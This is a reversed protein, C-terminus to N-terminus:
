FQYLVRARLGITMNNAWNPGPQTSVVTPITVVPGAQIAWHNRQWEVPTGLTFSNILDVSCSASYNAQDFGFQPELYYFTVNQTQSLNLYTGVTPSIAFSKSLPVRYGLTLPIQLRVMRTDINWIDRRPDIGRAFEQRFDRHTRANFDPASIFTGSMYTAQSLGAGLTWHRNLMIEGFVGASWMRSDFEGGLGTRVQIAAKALQQSEPAQVQEVVAPKNPRIARMQRSRLALSRSWNVSGLALPRSAVLEYTTLQNAAEPSATSPQGGIAVSETKNGFNASQGANENKGHGQSALAETNNGAAASETTRQRDPRNVRTNTRDTSSAPSDLPNTGAKNPPITTAVSENAPQEPRTNTVSTSNVDNLVNPQTSTPNNGTRPLATSAPTRNTAAYRQGAASQPASRDFRESNPAELRAPSPVTIYRTIYVTDPRVPLAKHQNVIALSEGSKSGQPRNEGTLSPQNTGKREFISGNEAAQQQANKSSHNLQSVTQRLDNIESRQWISFAVLAVTSVSAAALMWSQGSWVGGTFPHQAAPLDPQPLNAQQLTTQM